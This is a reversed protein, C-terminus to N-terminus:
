DDSALDMLKKAVSIWLICLALVGVAAAVMPLLFLPDGTAHWALAEFPAFLWLVALGALGARHWLPRPPQRHLTCIYHAEASCGCEMPLAAM